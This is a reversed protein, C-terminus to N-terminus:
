TIRKWWHGIVEGAHGVFGAVDSYPSFRDVDCHVRGTDKGVVIQLSGKGLVGTHARFDIRRKGVEPHLKHLGGKAFRPDKRLRDVIALNTRAAVSVDGLQIETLYDLYGATRIQEIVENAPLKFIRKLARIPGVAM